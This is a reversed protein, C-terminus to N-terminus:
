GGFKAGPREYDLERIMAMWKEVQAFARKDALDKHALGKGRLDKDRFDDRKPIPRSETEAIESMVRNSRDLAGDKCVFKVTEQAETPLGIIVTLQPIRGRGGCDSM